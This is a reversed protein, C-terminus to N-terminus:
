VKTLKLGKKLLMRRNSFPKVLKAFMTVNCEDHLCLICANM